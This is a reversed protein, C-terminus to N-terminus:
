SQIGAEGGMKSWTGSDRKDKVQGGLWVGGRQVAPHLRPSNAVSFLCVEEQWAGEALQWSQAM